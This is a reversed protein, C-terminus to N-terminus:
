RRLGPVEAVDEQRLKKYVADFTLGGIAGVVLMFVVLTKVGPEELAGSSTGSACCSRM